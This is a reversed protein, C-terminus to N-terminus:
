PLEFIELLAVGSTGATGNLAVTYPGPPLSALLAADASGAALPFAGVQASAASVAAPDGGTQWNDNAAVITGRADFVTLNPDTLAGAVRFAALAPGIGRILFRGSKEGRIVFGAVVEAGAGAFARGSVNVLRNATDDAEYLELLATGASAAGTVAATYNGAPLAAVLASDASGPAFPFAGARAFLAAPTQLPDWHGARALSIGADDALSLGPHALAGSVGLAALAPGAARLLIGKPQAGQVTFGVILTRDGAGAVARLSFNALAAAGDITLRASRSTVAGLSNRVVVRYDGADGTGVNALSLVRETGVVTAGRLWQFTVPGTGAVEVALQVTRGASTALSTPARVIAPASTAAGAAIPARSASGLLNLFRDFAAQGVRAGMRRGMFDDAAIHIGGYLRSLGAQDAADFYTAWQLQVSQSPGNEFGLATGAPFDHTALGGPFFASGTFRTLVEAAARSFTSHGSIYAPFAPTVFTDRQYPLWNAALVWGVGSTLDPSPPTGLWSKVAIAGVHAALAAHRQGPGSSGATVIEILDPVLPLGRANFNTRAPDSSQGLSALYRIMTIPRASDYQWKLTWAACAADHMAGNLAVYGLVDWALRDLPAGAGLFRRTALPHDGLENFLVNWHGPPTESAPGDAWFEALLRAYDGRPVVNAAYPRSTVPNLAHGTGDNTGLPNNLMRGPSIDLTAGDAATLQSSYRIVEVAQRAYDAGGFQPPPGPDDLLFGNAAHLLAFTRTNRANAGIFGQPGSGLVLGNQTITKALDLPQWRNPDVIPGIGSDRVVLPPNVPRYGSADAYGGSENAGDTATLALTRAAIRLGAAAPSAGTDDSLDPDFGYQQLLWRAGTTTAVSGPSRAFRATILRFAAYSMAQEQAGRRASEDAPLVVTERHFLEHHAAWGDREYAWYADWLVASLHYLNRAHVPPNPTDKRIGELLAENWWRAVSKTALDATVAVTAAASTVTGFPNDLRVTYAGADVPQVRPLTLTAGTVDPLRVGDKFWSYVPAPSGAGAATLTVVSDKVATAGRPATVLVPESGAGATETITLTRDAAVNSIEQLTGNPWKIRIREITTATGLGFHLVPERQGLYANTPNYLAFQDRGGATVRVECGYGDRNSSTGKFRLNIWHAAPTVNRYLLRHGETQTIFVDERGDHDYDLVVVSRGLGNDTIGYAPGESTFEGRRNLFLKTPDNKAPAFNQGPAVYGNTVVLDPWGDNNVDLSGVGWGWGTDKLETGGSVETFRRNGTYRYLKNDSVYSPDASGTVPSTATVFLDLRGDGDYDVVAAGRGTARSALGAADTGNTFTGNGNNWWLQNTGAEGALFVDPFGDGDFDAWTAGTNAIVGGIAPQVLGSAATKNEFFGPNARGLNRLLVSHQANQSHSVVSWETVHLDLFGDRDYDVLTVSQGRHPQETVTADAGRAVAQETFHGTGDNVFLFYRPGGVPAMFVDPVGRNQFDGVAIGGIDSATDLGRAKGEERFTGDRNNIFVLCPANAQAVIVDTWGDGDLDCAAAAGGVAYADISALTHPGVGTPYNLDLGASPARESFQARASPAPLNIAGVAVLLWAVAVAYGRLPLSPPQRRRPPPM